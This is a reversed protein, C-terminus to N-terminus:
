SGSCEQRLCPQPRVNLLVGNTGRGTHVRVTAGAALRFTPFHGILTKRTATVNKAGSTRFRDGCRGWSRGSIL